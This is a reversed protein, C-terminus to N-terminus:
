DALERYLDVAKRCLELGERPSVSHAMVFGAGSCYTAELRKRITADEIQPFTERMALFSRTAQESDGRLHWMFALRMGARLYTECVPLLELSAELEMRAQDYDGRNYLMQGLGALVLGREGPSRAMALARRFCEEARDHDAVLTYLDGLTSEAFFEDEEHEASGAFSVGRYCELWRIAERTAQRGMAQRAAMLSYKRAREEDLSDCYYHAVTALLEDPGRDLRQEFFLGLRSNVAKRLGLTLQSHLYSRVTDHTFRYEPSGVLGADEVMLEMELPKQLSRAIRIGPEDLVFALLEITFGGVVASATRLLERTFDDLGELRESIVQSISEPLELDDAVEYDWSGAAGPSISGKETLSKLLERLYFPNGGSQRVLRQLVPRPVHPDRLAFMVLHGAYEEPLESLEVTLFPVLKSLVIVQRHVEPYGDVPSRMTAVFFIRASASTRVLYCLMELDHGSIWQLDDILFVVPRRRAIQRLLSSADCFVRHRVAGESGSVAEQSDDEAVDVGRLLEATQPHLPGVELLMERLPAPPSELLHDRIPGTLQVYPASSGLEDCKTELFLCGRFSCYHRLEAVLRSKGVGPEGSVLAFRSGQEVVEDLTARLSRLERHRDVFHDFSMAAQPPGAGPDRYFSVRGRGGDKAQYLAKDAKEMVESLKSDDAASDAVGLSLSVRVNEPFIETELDELIRQAQNAAQLHSTAPMVVVFEDGGYRLVHDTRRVNRALVDAVQRLVRDGKLHGYVDNILKFHDVDAVMVSWTEGEPRSSFGHDLSELAERGPLGTLGDRHEGSQTM